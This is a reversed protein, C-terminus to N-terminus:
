VVDFLKLIVFMCIFCNIVGIVMSSKCNEMPISETDDDNVPVYPQELACLLSGLSSFMCMIICGVLMTVGASTGKKTINNSM